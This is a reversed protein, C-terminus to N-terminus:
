TSLRTYRGQGPKAILGAKFLKGLSQRVTSEAAGIGTAIDGASQLTQWGIVTDNGGVADSLRTASRFDMIVSALVDALRYQPVSEGGPVISEFSCTRVLTLTM